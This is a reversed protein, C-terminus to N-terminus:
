RQIHTLCALHAGGGPGPVPGCIDRATDHAAGSPVAPGRVAGSLGIRLSGTGTPLAGRECLQRQPLHLARPWSIGLM